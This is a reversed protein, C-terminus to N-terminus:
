NYSSGIPRRVILKNDNVLKSVEAVPLYTLIPLIAASAWVPVLTWMGQSTEMPQFFFMSGELSDKLPWTYALKGFSAVAERLCDGSPELLVIVNSNQQLEIEHELDQGLITEYRTDDFFAQATGIITDVQKKVWFPLSERIFLGCIDADNNRAPGGEMKEIRLAALHTDNDEMRRFRESTLDCKNLIRCLSEFVRHTIEQSEFVGLLEYKHIGDQPWGWEYPTYGESQILQVEYQTQIFM